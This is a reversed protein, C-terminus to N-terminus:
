TKDAVALLNPALPIRRGSEWGLEAIYEARRHLRYFRLMWWQLSRKTPLWWLFRPRRVMEAPTISAHSFGGHRLLYELSVPTFNVRHTYDNHFWYGTISSCANPVTCILRGGAKLSGHIAQLFERQRERPVHELVDMLIVVSYRGPREALFDETREVLTVRLGLRRAYEAQGPDTEVGELDTYGADHLVAMAYGRGCGLDLIPGARDAPLLPLLLRRHYIALGQRHALTEPHFRSYHLSYDWNM